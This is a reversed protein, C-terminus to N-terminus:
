ALIEEKQTQRRQKEGRSKKKMWDNQSVQRGRFFGPVGRLLRLGRGEEDGEAAKAAM